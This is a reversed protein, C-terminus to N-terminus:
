ADKTAILEGIRLSAKDADAPRKREVANRMVEVQYGTDDVFETRPLQSSIALWLGEIDALVERGDGDAIATSLTYATTLLRQLLEDPSGTPATTTAGVATTSAGSVLTTTGCAGLLLVLAAVAASRFAATM